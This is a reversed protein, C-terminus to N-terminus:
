ATVGPCTLCRAGDARSYRIAQGPEIPTNCEACNGSYRAGIIRDVPGQAVEITRKQLRRINAGLNTIAYSPYPVSRDRGYATMATLEAKHMKRYSANAAKMQERQAELQAIREALQKPATPDDTAMHAQPDIQAVLDAPDVVAQVHGDLGVQIIAPCRTLVV